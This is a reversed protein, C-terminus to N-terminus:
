GSRLRSDATPLPGRTDRIPPCAPTAQELSLPRGDKPVQPHQRSGAPFVALAADFRALDRRFAAHAITNMTRHETVQNETM